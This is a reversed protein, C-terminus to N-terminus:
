YGSRARALAKRANEVSERRSACVNIAGGKSRQQDGSMGDVIWNRSGSVRNCLALQERAHALRKKASEVRAKKAAAAQRGSVSPKASSRSSSGRAGVPDTTRRATSKTRPTERSPSAGGMGTATGTGTAKWSEPSLDPVGTPRRYSADKGTVSLGDGEAENLTREGVVQVDQADNEARRKKEKKAVEGLSQAFGSSACSFVFLFTIIASHHRM